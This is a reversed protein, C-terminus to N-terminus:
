FDCLTILFFYYVREKVFKFYVVLSFLTVFPTITCFRAIRGKAVINEVKTKPKKIENLNNRYKQRSTKLITQLTNILYFFKIQAVHFDFM